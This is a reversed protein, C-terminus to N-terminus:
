MVLYIVDSCIHEKWRKVKQSVVAVAWHVSYGTKSITTIIIIIIIFLCKLFACNVIFRWLPARPSASGPRVTVCTRKWHIGLVTMHSPRTVYSLRCTGSWIHKNSSGYPASLWCSHGHFSFHYNEQTGSETIFHFNTLSYTSCDCLVNHSAQLASCLTICPLSSHRYHNHLLTKALHHIECITQCCTAPQWAHM